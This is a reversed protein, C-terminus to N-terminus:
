RGGIAIEMQSEKQWDDEEEEEANEIQSCDRKQKVRQGATRQATEKADDQACAKKEKIDAVVKQAEKRVARTQREKKEAKKKQAEEQCGEEVTVPCCRQCSRSAGNRCSRTEVVVFSATKHPRSELDEVVEMQSIKGKLSDCAPAYDYVKEIWEGKAGKSRCTSAKEPAVVHM